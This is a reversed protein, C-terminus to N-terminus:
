GQAMLRQSLEDLTPCSWGERILVALPRRRDPDLACMHENDYVDTAAAAVARWAHEVAGDHSGKDVAAAIYATHAASYMACADAEGLDRAREIAARGADYCSVDRRGDAWALTAELAAYATTQDGPALRAAATRACAVAARAAHTPDAHALLNVLVVPDECTSWGLVAEAAWRDALAASIAGEYLASAM